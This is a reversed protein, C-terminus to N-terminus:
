LLGKRAFLFTTQEVGKLHAGITTVPVHCALIATLPDREFAAKLAPSAGKSPVDFAEYGNSCILMGLGAYGGFADWGAHREQRVFTPSMELLAFDIRQEAFLDMCVRTVQHEMGEVDSKLLRVREADPRLTPSTEDIWTCLMHMRESCGNVAANAVCRAANEADAEFAVVDYGAKGALCAYWGLHAGFDLVVDHRDGRSLIALALLTEYGEWVQGLQLAHSFEDQGTCYGAFGDYREWEYVDLALEMALHDPIAPYEHVIGQGRLAVSVRRTEHHRHGAHCILGKATDRPDPAGFRLGQIIAPTM